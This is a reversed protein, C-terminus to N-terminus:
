DYAYRERQAAAALPHSGATRELPINPALERSFPGGVGDPGYLAGGVGVQFFVLAIGFLFCVGVVAYWRRSWVRGPPLLLVHALAPAGALVGLLHGVWYAPGIWTRAGVAGVTTVLGLDVVVLLLVARSVWLVTPWLAQWRTLGFRVFPVYMANAVFVAPVALVLGLVDM